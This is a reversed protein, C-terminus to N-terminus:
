KMHDYREVSKGVILNLQQPELFLHFVLKLAREEILTQVLRHVRQGGQSLVFVHFLQSFIEFHRIPPKTPHLNTYSCCYDFHKQLETCTQNIKEGDM